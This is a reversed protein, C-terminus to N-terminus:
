TVVVAATDATLSSRAPGGSAGWGDWERWVRNSPGEEMWKGEKEEEEQEEAEEEEKGEEEETDAGGTKEKHGTPPPLPPM